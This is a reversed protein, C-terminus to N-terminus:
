LSNDKILPCVNIKNDEYDRKIRDYPCGGGCVPLLLCDRCQQDDFPDAAALYRFLLPENTIRGDLYGYVRDKKGVDNWCKYLEGEPGIVVSNPNRVFCELRPEPYLRDFIIGHERLLKDIYAYQEKSNLVCKNM